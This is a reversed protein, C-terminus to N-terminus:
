SLTGATMQRLVQPSVHIQHARTKSKILDNGRLNVLLSKMYQDPFLMFCSVTLLHACKQDAVEAEIGEPGQQFDPSCLM